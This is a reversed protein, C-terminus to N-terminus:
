DLIFSWIKIKKKKEPLGLVPTTPLPFVVKFGPLFLVEESSFLLADLSFYTFIEKIVIIQKLNSVILLVAIRSHNFYTRRNKYLDSCTLVNIRWIM